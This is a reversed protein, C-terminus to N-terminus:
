AIPFPVIGDDSGLPFIQRLRWRDSGDLVLRAELEMTPTTIVVTATTAGAATIPEGGQLEVITEIDYPFGTADLREDLAAPGLSHEIGGFRALERLPLLAERQSPAALLFYISLHDGKAVLRSITEVTAMPSDSPLLQYWDDFETLDTPEGPLPPHGSFPFENIDGDPYRVQRIRWDGRPSKGLEVTATVGTARLTVDVLAARSDVTTTVVEMAGQTFDFRLGGTTAASQMALDFMRLTDTYHDGGLEATLRAVLAGQGPADVWDYFTEADIASRMADQTSPHLILAATIFDGDAFADIFAGVALEPTSLDLEEYSVPLLGGSHSTSEDSGCGLALLGCVVLM